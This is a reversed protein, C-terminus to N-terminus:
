ERFQDVSDIYNSDFNWNGKEASFLKFIQKFNVQFFFICYAAFSYACDSEIKKLFKRATSTHLHAWM